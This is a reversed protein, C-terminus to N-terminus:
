GGCAKAAGAPKGEVQARAKAEAEAGVAPMASGTAGGIAGSPFSRESSWEDVKGNTRLARVQYAISRLGNPVDADVITRKPTM